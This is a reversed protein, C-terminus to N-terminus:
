SKLIYIKPPVCINCGALLSVCLWISYFIKLSGNKELAIHETEKNFILLILDKQKGGNLSCLRFSFDCKQFERWYVSCGKGSLSFISFSIKCHIPPLLSGSGVIVWWQTSSLFILHDAIVVVILTLFVLSQYSKQSVKCLVRSFIFGSCAVASATCWTVLTDPVTAAFKKSCAATSTVKKWLAWSM